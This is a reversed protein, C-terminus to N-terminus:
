TSVSLLSGISAWSNQTTQFPNEMHGAGQNSFIVVIVYLSVFLFFVCWRKAQRLSKVNLGNIQLTTIFFCVKFCLMYHAGCFDVNFMPSIKKIITVICITHCSINKFLAVRERGGGYCM